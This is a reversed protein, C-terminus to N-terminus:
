ARNRASIAVGKGVEPLLVQVDPCLKRCTEAFAQPDGGQDAFLWYHHPIVMRPRCRRTMEAAALHDMNGWRGNICPLLVDPKLAYLADFVAGELSTDGSYLLRVGDFELVFGLASPASKGHDAHATHLTVEDLEYKRDPELLVRRSEPVGAKTLGNSCGAPGAFRCAPNNQAIVPITEPDLHDVHEHSMVVLNVRADEPAIPKPVVRKHGHQREMIDSLYPDVYVVRGKCNKFAFGAGCLWWLRVSGAAVQATAIDEKLTIM